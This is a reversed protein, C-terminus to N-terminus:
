VRLIFYSLFFLFHYFFRLPGLFPPAPVCARYIWAVMIFKHSPDYPQVIKISFQFYFSSFLIFFLSIDICTLVECKHDPNHSRSWQMFFNVIWVWFWDFILSYFLFLIFIFYFSLILVLYFYIFHHPISNFFYFDILFIIYFITILFVLILDLIFIL